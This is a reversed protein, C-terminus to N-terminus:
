QIQCRDFVSPNLYKELAAVDFYTTLFNKYVDGMHEVELLNVQYARDSIGTIKYFRHYEKEKIYSYIYNEFECLFSQWVADPDKMRPIKIQLMGLVGYVYDVPDMCCRTSHGLANILYILNGTSKKEIRTRTFFRTSDVNSLWGYVAKVNRLPASATEDYFLSKADGFYDMYGSMVHAMRRYTYLLDNLAITHRHTGSEAMLHVNGFPLAMEQWTWVRQWWECQMFDFLREVVHPHKKDYLQKYPLFYDPRASTMNMISSETFDEEAPAMTHLLPILSPECDVMAICELCCAYIDGMIDLPTDSRACLVDIWWYSDPSDELMRLLTDRKEERMSVPDVPKGNEDDMYDGIEHWLHRNNETIGWLHSLAYYSSPIPKAENIRKIMRRRHYPNKAPRVIRMKAGNKPVYLLLFNPDVLLANLGKEFFRKIHHFDEDDDLPSLLKKAFFRKDPNNEYTELRIDIKEPGDYEEADCTM